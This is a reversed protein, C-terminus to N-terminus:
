WRASASPLSGPSLRELMLLGREELSCQSLPSLRAIVAGVDARRERRWHGGLHLLQVVSKAVLIEETVTELSLGLVRVLAKMGLYPRLARLGAEHAQLSHQKRGATNHAFEVASGQCCNLFQVPGHSQCSALSEDSRSLFGVVFSEPLWHVLFNCTRFLCPTCSFEISNISWGATGVICWPCELKLLPLQTSTMHHVTKQHYIYTYIYRHIYKHINYIYMHVAWIM